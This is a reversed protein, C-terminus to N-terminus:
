NGTDGEGNGSKLILFEFDAITKNIRGFLNERRWLLVSAKM